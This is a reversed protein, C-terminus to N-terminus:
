ELIWMSNSRSLHFSINKLLIFKGLYKSISPLSLSTEHLEGLSKLLLLSRWSIKLFHKFMSPYLSFVCLTIKVTLLDSYKCYFKTSYHLNCSNFNKIDIRMNKRKETGLRKKKKKKKQRKANELAAGSAYPPEWALPQIPGTSVPRCWLWLLTPDSGCRPGVGCSM